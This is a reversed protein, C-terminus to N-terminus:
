AGIYLEGTLEFTVTLSNEPGMLSAPINEGVRITVLSGFTQGPNITVYEPGIGWSAYLQKTKLTDFSGYLNYDDLGPAYFGLWFYNDLTNDSSSTLQFSSYALPLSGLNRTTVTINVEAGPYLNTMTIDVSKKDDAIQHTVGILDISKDTTQSGWVVLDIDGMSATGNITVSSTWAAYSAGAISFALVIMIFTVLMKSKM